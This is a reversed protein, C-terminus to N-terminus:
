KRKKPKFNIKDSFDEFDKKTEKLVALKGSYFGAIFTMLFLLAILM